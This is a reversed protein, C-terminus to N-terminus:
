GPIYCTFQKLYIAVLKFLCCQIVGLKSNLYKSCRIVNPSFDKLIIPKSSENFRKAFLFCVQLNFVFWQKLEGFVEEIIEMM